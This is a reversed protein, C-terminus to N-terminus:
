SIIKRIIDTFKFHSNYDLVDRSKNLNPKRRRIDKYKGHASEEDIFVINSRSNTMKKIIEAHELVSLEEDTGLNFIDGNCENFNNMISVLGSVIDGVYAMSRTQQGDGHIVIDENKQARDIFLPIHGGSWKKNSRESFCGFVRAISVNLEDQNYLNLLVQEEFLKVLSYSQREVDTKSISVSDEENFTEHHGYVDSTSTFILRAGDSKCFDSVQKIMMSNNIMVDSSTVKSEFGVKPYTKKYSALHFVYNFQSLDCDCSVECRCTKSLRWFDDTCDSEIFTFKDFLLSEKLNDLNGYSLNDVGVVECGMVLLEDCLHSGILGAAGTVLVKM